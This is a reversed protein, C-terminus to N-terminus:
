KQYWQFKTIVGREGVAYFYNEDAFSVDKYTYPITTADSAHMREWSIRGNDDFPMLVTNEGVIIGKENYYDIAYLNFEYGGPAAEDQQSYSARKHEFLGNDGIINGTGYSFFYLDRPNSVDYSIGLVKISIGGNTTEYFSEEEGIFYGTDKNIFFVKNLAPPQWAPSWNDWYNGGDTTKLIRASGGTWYGVAYGINKDVFFIGRCYIGVSSTINNWTTGQNYTRYVGATTALYGTDENIFLIQNVIINTDTFSFNQWSKAGDTTKYFKGNRGGIFGVNSNLFYVAELTSSTPSNVQEM